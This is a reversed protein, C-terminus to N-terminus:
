SAGELRVRRGVTGMADGHCGTERLCGGEVVGACWLVNRGRRRMEVGILIRLFVSEVFGVWHPCSSDAGKELKVRCNRLKSCLTSHLLGFSEFSAPSSQDDDDDDDNDKNNNNNNDNQKITRKLTKEM